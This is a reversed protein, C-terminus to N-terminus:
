HLDFMTGKITNPLPNLCLYLPFNSHVNSSVAPLMNREERGVKM